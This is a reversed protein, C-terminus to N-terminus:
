TAAHSQAWCFFGEGVATLKFCGAAIMAAADIGIDKLLEEQM